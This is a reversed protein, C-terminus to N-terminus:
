AVFERELLVAHIADEGKAVPGHVTYGLSTLTQVINAAILAEDEVVLINYEKM